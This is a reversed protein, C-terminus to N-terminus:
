EKSAKANRQEIWEKPIIEAWDEVVAQVQGYQMSHMDNISRVSDLANQLSVHDKTALRNLREEQEHIHKSVHRMQTDLTLTRRFAMKARSTANDRESKGALYKTPIYTIIGTAVLQLVQILVLETTTRDKAAALSSLYILGIGLFLFTFLQLIFKLNNSLWRRM